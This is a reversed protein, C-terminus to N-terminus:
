LPQQATTPRISIPSLFAEQALAVDGQKALELSAIFTSSWASRQRLASGHKTEAGELPQPLLTEFWRENATEALLRLIRIRADPVSYLNLWRPRYEAATDTGQMDDDFLMLSAWLFEIVDVAQPNEISVGFVEPRGRAFVERGLQPRHELWSALGQMQQLKVLRGRLEDAEAAAAPQEPADAPLLLRSRLQVLWAAMVVWDGKQGLPTQAPAHRLATALQDVLAALSIESLDIRQARVLTLLHDLRGSFADLTLSPAWPAGLEDPGATADAAGWDM